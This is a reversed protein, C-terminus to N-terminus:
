RAAPSNDANQDAAEGNDTQADAGDGNGQESNDGNDGAQSNQEADPNDADGNQDADAANQDADGPNQNDTDASGSDDGPNDANLQAQLGETQNMSMDPSLQAIAIPRATVSSPNSNAALRVDSAAAASACLAPPAFAFVALIAIAISLDKM